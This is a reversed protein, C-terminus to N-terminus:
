GAPTSRIALPSTASSSASLHPAVPALVARAVRQAWVVQVAAVAQVLAGLQQDAAAVLASPVASRVLAVAKRPALLQPAQLVPLERAWPVARALALVRVRSRLPAARTCAAAVVRPPPTRGTM